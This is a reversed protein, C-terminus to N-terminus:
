GDELNLTRRKLEQYRNEHHLGDLNPHCLVWIPYEIGNALARELRDIADENRGTLAYLQALNWNLGPDSFTLHESTPELRPEQGLRVLACDRWLALILNGPSEELDDEVGAIFASFQVRAADADGLGNFAIGEFFHAMYENPNLASVREYSRVAEEHEGALSLAHGLQYHTYFSDPLIETARRAAEM